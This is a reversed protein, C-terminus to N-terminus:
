PLRLRVTFPVVVKREQQGTSVVELGGIRTEGFPHDAAQQEFDPLRHPEVQCQLQCM